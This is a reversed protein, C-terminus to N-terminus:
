PQNSLLSLPSFLQAHTLSSIIEITSWSLYHWTYGEPDCLVESRQEETPATLIRADEAIFFCPQNLEM